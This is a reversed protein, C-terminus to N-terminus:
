RKALAAICYRHIMMAVTSQCFQPVKKMTLNGQGRRPWLLLPPTEAHSVYRGNDNRRPASLTGSDIQRFLVPTKAAHQHQPASYANKAIM